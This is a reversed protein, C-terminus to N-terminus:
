ALSRHGVESESRVVVGDVDPRLLVDVEELAPVYVTEGQGELHAGETVVGHVRREKDGASEPRVLCWAGRAPDADKVCRPRDPQLGEGRVERELRAHGILLQASQFFRPRAVVQGQAGFEGQGCQCLRLVPGDGVVLLDDADRVRRPAVSEGLEIDAGEDIDEDRDGGHFGPGGARLPDALRLGRDTVSPVLV